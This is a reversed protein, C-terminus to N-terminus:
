HTISQIRVTVPKLGKDMAMSVQVDEPNKWNVTM